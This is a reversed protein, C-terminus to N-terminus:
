NFYALFPEISRVRNLADCLASQQEERKWAEYINRAMLKAHNEENSCQLEFDNLHKRLERNSDREIRSKEIVCQLRVNENLDSSDAGPRTLVGAADEGILAPRLASEETDSGEQILPSSQFALSLNRYLTNLDVDLASKVEKEIVVKRQDRLHELRRQLSDMFEEYKDTSAELHCLERM